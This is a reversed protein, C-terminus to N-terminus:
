DIDETEGTPIVAGLVWGWHVSTWHLTRMWEPANEQLQTLDQATSGARGAPGAVRFTKGITWLRPGRITYPDLADRVKLPEDVRRVDLLVLWM